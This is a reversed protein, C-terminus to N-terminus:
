STAGRGKKGQRQEVIPLREQEGQLSELRKELRRIRAEANAAARKHVRSRLFVGVLAVLGVFNIVISTTFAATVKTTKGAFAHAISDATIAIILLGLLISVAWIGSLVLGFWWPPESGSGPNGAEVLAM